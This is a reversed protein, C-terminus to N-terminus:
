FNPNNRLFLKVQRDTGTYGNKKLTSRARSRKNNQPAQQTGQELFGFAKEAEKRTIQKETVMARIKQRIRNNSLGMKKLQAILTKAKQISPQAKERPATRGLRKDQEKLLDRHRQQFMQLDNAEEETLGEMRVEQQQLGTIAMRTDDIATALDRNQMNSTPKSFSDKRRRWYGARAKREQEQAKTSAETAIDTPARQLGPVDTLVGKQAASVASSGKIGLAALRRNREQELAQEQLVQRANETEEPSLGVDGLGTAQKQLYQSIETESKPLSVGFDEQVTRQQGPELGGYIQSLFRRRADETRRKELRELEEQRLKRKGALQGKTLFFQSASRQVGQATGLIDDISAM